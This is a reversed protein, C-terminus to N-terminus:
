GAAGEDLDGGDTEGGVGAEVEGLGGRLGVFVGLDEAFAGDGEDVWFRVGVGADGDMVEIRGTEEVFTDEVEGVEVLDIVFIDNHEV